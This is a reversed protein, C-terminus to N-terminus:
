KHVLPVILEYVKHKVIHRTPGEVEEDEGPVGGGEM